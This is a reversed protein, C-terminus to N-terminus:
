KNLTISDVYIKVTKYEVCKKSTVPILTKGTSILTTVNETKLCIKEEYYTGLDDTKYDKGCSFILLAIILALKKM